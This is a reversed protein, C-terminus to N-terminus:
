IVRRLLTGPGPDSTRILSPHFVPHFILLPFCHPHPAGSLLVRSPLEAVHSNRTGLKAMTTLTEDGAEWNWNGGSLQAGNSIAANGRPASRKRSRVVDIEDCKTVHYSFTRTLAPTPSQPFRLSHSPPRALARFIAPPIPPIAPPWLTHSLNSSICTQSNIDQLPRRFTSSPPTHGRASPSDQASSRPPSPPIRGATSRTTHNALNKERQTSKLLVSQHLARPRPRFTHLRHLPQPPRQLLSAPAQPSSRARPTPSETRPNFLAPKSNSNPNQLSVKPPAHANSPLSGCIHGEAIAFFFPPAPLTALAAPAAAPTEASAAGGRSNL